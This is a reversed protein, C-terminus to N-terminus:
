LLEKGAYKGVVSLDTRDYLIPTVTVFGQKSLTVDTEESTEERDIPDGILRYADGGRSVYEDSYRQIGLPCVRAGKVQESPLNPMNVNLTYRSSFLKEIEPFIKKVMKANESFLYDGAAVNSFAVSPVGFYNGELGAAVTGSYTTDSGLNLGHNIGSCVLDFPNEAFNHFAFKVCDAPTGSLSYAPYRDSIKEKRLCVDKHITLSHSFGSRNGDPALVFIEHKESLVDALAKLGEASIGDDNTVLIRM